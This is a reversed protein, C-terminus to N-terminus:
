YAQPAADTWCSTDIGPCNKSSTASTSSQGAGACVRGLAPWGAAPAEYWALLALLGTAAFSHLFAIARAYREEPAAKRSLFYLGRCRSFHHIHATFHPGSNKSSTMTTSIRASSLASVSSTRRGPSSSTVFGARSLALVVAFVIWGVPLGPRALAEQLVWVMMGTAAWTYAVRAFSSIDNTRTGLRRPWGIVELLSRYLASLACQFTHWTPHRGPDATLATFVALGTFFMRIGALAHYRLARTRSRVSGSRIRHFSPSGFNRRRSGSLFLLFFRQGCRRLPRSDRAPRSEDRLAALKRHSLVSCRSDGLACV